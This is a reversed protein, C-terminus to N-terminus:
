REESTRGTGEEGREEMEENMMRRHIEEHEDKREDIQDNEEEERWEHVRYPLNDREINHWGLYTKGGKGEKM